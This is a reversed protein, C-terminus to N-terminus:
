SSLGLTYGNVSVRGSDSGRLCAVVSERKADGFAHLPWTLDAYACLGCRGASGRGRDQARGLFGNEVVEGRAAIPQYHHFLCQFEKEKLGMTHVADCM